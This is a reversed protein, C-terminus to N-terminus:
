VCVKDVCESTGEMHIKNIEVKKWRLAHGKEVITHSRSTQRYREVEYASFFIGLKRVKRANLEEVRRGLKFEYLVKLDCKCWLCEVPYRQITNTNQENILHDGVGNPVYVISNRNGKLIGPTLSLSGAKQLGFIQTNEVLCKMNNAHNRRNILFIADVPCSFIFRLPDFLQSFNFSIYFGKLSLLLHLPM